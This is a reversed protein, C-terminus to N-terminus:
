LLYIVAACVAAGVALILAVLQVIGKIKQGIASKEYIIVTDANAGIEERDTREQEQQERNKRFDKYLPVKMRKKPKKSIDPPQIHTSVSQLIEFIRQQSLKKDQDQIEDQEGPTEEASVAETGSYEAAEPQAAADNEIVTEAAYEGVAGMAAATVPEPQIGRAAFEAELERKTARLQANLQDAENIKKELSVAQDILRNCKIKLYQIEIEGM